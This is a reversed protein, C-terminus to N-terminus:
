TSAVFIEKRGPLNARGLYRTDYTSVLPMPGMREGRYNLWLASKCPILSLGHNPYRAKPHTFGAAYNWQWDLNTVNGNIKETADHLDGIAYPHSGNLIVAPPEGWAKYWNAKVKEISGNIGGTAVVVAEAQANFAEGNPETVGKVGKLRGAEMEFDLVRHRFKLQLREAHRHTRLRQILNQVLAKSTGWTLHFRPVSNGPQHLGKEVWHLARFWEVGMPKLWHYIEPTCLHVFQEAWKKPWYDTPGFGAVAMWDRLALDISDKIGARRQHASDVFFMGGFAWNALGGFDAEEDRDLLIVSRGAELLELAATVGALGGGVVITDAQYTEKM